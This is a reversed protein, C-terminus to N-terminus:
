PQHSYFQKAQVKDDLFQITITAGDRAKWTASTGSFDGFQIGSSETPKGLIGRVQELTMGTKVQDFNSQTIKSACGTLALALLVPLIVLRLAIKWRDTTGGSGIRGRM